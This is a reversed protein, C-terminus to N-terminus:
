RSMKKVGVMHWPGPSVPMILCFRFELSSTSRCACMPPDTLIHLPSVKCKPPCPFLSSPLPSLVVPCLSHSDTFGSCKIAFSSNAIFRSFWFWFRPHHYHLLLPNNQLQTQILSSVLLSWTSDPSAWASSVSSHGETCLLIKRIQQMLLCSTLSRALSRASFLSAM